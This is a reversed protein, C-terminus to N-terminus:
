SKVQKMKQFWEQAAPSQPHIKHDKLSLPTAPTVNPIRKIHKSALLELRQKDANSMLKREQSLKDMYSFVWNVYGDESQPTSDANEKSPKPTEKANGANFLENVEM